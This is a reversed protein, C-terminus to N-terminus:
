LHTRPIGNKQKPSEVIFMDNTLLFDRYEGNQPWRYSLIYADTIEFVGYTPEEMLYANILNTFQPKLSLKKSAKISKQISQWYKGNDSGQYLLKGKKLMQNFSYCFVSVKIITM